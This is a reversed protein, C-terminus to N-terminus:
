VSGGLTPTRDGGPARGGRRAARNRGHSEGAGSCHSPHPGLLARNPTERWQQTWDARPYPSYAQLCLRGTPFDHTSTWGHHQAYRGRRKPVYDTLRVYEGNVYRAEAEESMEIITLGIAVTGIYVVTCRMPSWLDSITTARGPNEREDVEARISDSRTPRSSWATTGASGAGPLARECLRHGQGVRGPDGGPRRATAQGAQPIQRAGRSAGPRSCRSPEAPWRIGIRSAAATGPAEARPRQDPPRPLSRARKPLAGDRTWELPDGPRPEPLPPQKPAKGVALKAWYGREPRPVNLLTCVRAMYSSSVGFRAAVRLMPESWVMEYLAERSVPGESSDTLSAPVQTTDQEETVISSQGWM